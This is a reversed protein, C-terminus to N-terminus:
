KKGMNKLIKNTNRRQVAHVAAAINADRRAREVAETQEQLLENQEATLYNQADALRNARQQEYLRAQELKRQEQKDYADIAYTVNYNSTSIMDYIFQLAPISRYQLPVIKTTDYLSQLSDQLRGLVNQTDEVAKDRESIWEAKEQQYKPMIVTDYEQKQTRYLEDAEAQRQTCQSDIAACQNKYEWSNEIEEKEKKIKYRMGFFYIFFWPFWLISPLIAILWNFKSKPEIQPYTKQIIQRTPPKPAPMYSANQLKSLKEQQKQIQISYDLAQKVALVRQQNDM